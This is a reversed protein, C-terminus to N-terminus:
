IGASDKIFGAAALHVEYLTKEDHNFQGNHGTRLPILYGTKLLDPEMFDKFLAKKVFDDKFASLEEAMRKSRASKITLGTDQSNDESPFEFRRESKRGKKPIDEMEIEEGPAGVAAEEAMAFVAEDEQTPMIRESMAAASRPSGSCSSDGDTYGGMRQMSNRHKKSLYTELKSM